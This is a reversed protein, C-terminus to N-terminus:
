ILDKAFFKGQINSNYYKDDQLVNHLFLNYTEWYNLSKKSYCIRLVEKHLPPNTDEIEKNLVKNSGTYSRWNSEKTIHQYHKKRKDQLAAIAKKGLKKKTTSFFQKRGIYKKNNSLNTILYIFGIAEMPPVLLTKGTEKIIWNNL